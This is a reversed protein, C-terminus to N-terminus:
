TISMDNEGNTSMLAVNRQNAMLQKGRQIRLSDAQFGINIDIEGHARAIWTMDFLDNFFKGYPFASWEAVSLYKGKMLTCLRAGFSHLLM